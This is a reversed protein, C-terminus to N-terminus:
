PYVSHRLIVQLAREIEEDEFSKGLEAGHVAVADDHVDAADAVFQEDHFFAREVRRQVAHLLATPNAGVPRDRVISAFGLPVGKGAGAPRLQGAAFFVPGLNDFADVCNQTKCSTFWPVTEFFKTAPCFARAHLLFDVRFQLFVDGHADVVVDGLAHGAFCRFAICAHAEATGGGHALADRCFIGSEAEFAEPVIHATSEADEDLIWAKCEDHDDRECEADAGVGGDKLQEICDAQARQGDRIGAFQGLQSDDPAIASETDGVIFEGIEGHGHPLLHLLVM